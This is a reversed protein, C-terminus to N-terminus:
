QPVEWEPLPVVVLSPYVEVFSEAAKLTAFYRVYEPICPHTPLIPIAVFGSRKERVNRFLPRAYPAEYAVGGVTCTTVAEYEDRACAVAIPFKGKINTAIVRAPKGEITEIPKTWDIETM